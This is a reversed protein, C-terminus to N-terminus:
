IVIAKHQVAGASYLSLHFNEAQSCVCWSTATTCTSSPIYLQGLSEGPAKHVQLEQWVNYHGVRVDLPDIVAIMMGKLSQVSQRLDLCHLLICVERKQQLPKNIFM